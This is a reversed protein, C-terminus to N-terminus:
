RRCKDLYSRVMSKYLVVSTSIAYTQLKLMM